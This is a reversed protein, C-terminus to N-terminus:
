CMIHHGSRKINNISVQPDCVPILDKSLLDFSNPLILQPHWAEEVLVWDSHIDGEEQSYEASESAVGVRETQSDTSANELSVQSSSPAHVQPEEKNMYLM